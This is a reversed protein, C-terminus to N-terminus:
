SKRAGKEQAPSRLQELPIPEPAAGTGGLVDPSRPVPPGGTQDQLSGLAQPAPASLPSFAVLQEIAMPAPGGVQAVTVASAASLEAPSLPVPAMGTGSAQLDALALPVPAEAASATQTAGRSTVAGDSGVSIHITVDPSM